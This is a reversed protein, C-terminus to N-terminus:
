GRHSGPRFTAAVLRGVDAIAADRAEPKAGDTQTLYCAIAIPGQPTWVVAIDNATGHEGTGTKDAVAWDKPLGARLRTLGTQCALMWTKLLNSTIPVLMGGLLVARLDAAMAAPTTTDRPDGPIATNLSLETRDLRSTKDGIRRVFRTWGAPGGISALILNAASNDSVTIAAACLDGFAMGGKKVHLRTIPANALLDAEGYRVFRDLREDGSDVNALAASVAMAKFTSCMPFREDARHALKAGNRVDLAFVGLRGGVRAEIAALEDAALAPGACLSAAAGAILGRRTSPAIM